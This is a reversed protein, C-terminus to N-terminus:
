TQGAARKRLVLLFAHSESHVDGAWERITLIDTDETAGQNLGAPDSVKLKRDCRTPNVNFIASFIRTGRGLIEQVNPISIYQYAQIRWISPALTATM